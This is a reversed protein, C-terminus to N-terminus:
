PTENPKKLGEEDGKPPIVAGLEKHATNILSRIGPQNSYKGEPDLNLLQNAFNIADIHRGSHIAVISRIWLSDYKSVTGTKVGRDLWLLVLDDSCKQQQLAEVLITILGLSNKIKTSFLKVYEPFQELENAIQVLEELRTEREEEPGSMYLVRTLAFKAEWYVQRTDKVFGNRGRSLEYLDLAKKYEDRGM